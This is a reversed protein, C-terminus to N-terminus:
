REAGANDERSGESDTHGFGGGGGGGVGDLLRNSSDPRARDRPGHARIPRELNGHPQEEKTLDDNLSQQRV